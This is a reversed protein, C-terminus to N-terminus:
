SPLVNITKMTYRVEYIQLSIKLSVASLGMQSMVNPQSIVIQGADDKKIRYGDCCLLRRKRTPDNVGANATKVLLLCYRKMETKAKWKLISTRSRELHVSLQRLPISVQGSINIPLSKRNKWGSMCGVIWVM